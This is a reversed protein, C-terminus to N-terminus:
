QGPVWGAGGYRTRDRMVSAMVKDAATTGDIAYTGSCLADDDLDWVSEGKGPIPIPVPLEVHALAKEIGWPWRPRKWRDLTETIELVYEGELFMAIQTYERILESSYVEKGLFFDLIHFNFEWWWPDSSSWKMDNEWISFWVTWDFVQIGIKRSTRKTIHGVLKSLWSCHEIYMFVQFMFPMAIHLMITDEGSLGDLGLMLVCSRAHWLTNWEVGLTFRKFTATGRGCLLASVGKDRGRFYIDM